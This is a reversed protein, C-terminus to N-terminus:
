DVMIQTSKIIKGNESLQALYMGSNLNERSVTMKRGNLNGVEKVLRGQLNYLKFSANQLAVESDITLTGVFPNPSFTIATKSFVHQAVGMTAAFTGCYETDGFVHVGNQFSCQTYVRYGGGSSFVPAYMFFDPYFPHANSGVGEIWTQYVHQGGGFLQVSELKIRKRTGGDVTIEDVLATFPVGKVTVLDGNELSFDYLLEDAGNVIKYVKQAEVDERLYITDMLVLPSVSWQPFPDVFKKYTYAGIIADTGPEIIKVEPPQCCSVWDNIVWASNDLLPHYPQAFTNQLFSLLFIATLLLKTKM